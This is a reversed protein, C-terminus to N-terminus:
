KAYCKMIDNIKIKIENVLKENLLIEVANAFDNNKTIKLIDEKELKSYLDNNEIEIKDKYDRISINENIIYKM